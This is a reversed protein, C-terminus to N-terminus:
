NLVCECDVVVQCGLHADALILDYHHAARNARSERTSDSRLHLRTRQDHDASEQGNPLDDLIFRVKPLAQGLQDFILHVVAFGYLLYPARSQKQVSHGILKHIVRVRLLHMLPALRRFVNM